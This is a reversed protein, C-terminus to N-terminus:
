RDESRDVLYQVLTRVGYGTGGRPVDGWAAGANYAPGAIDLHAFPIEGAFHSLFAAAFSPSGWRVWNHQLLDAMTTDTVSKAIHDPIPMPWVLEGAAQAAARVLAVQDESGFLGAVKHGLATICPGTLTSIEVIAEPEDESALALADALLLRGEADTNTIEVTTGNHTTLVDGPRMAAGSVMNEALPAWGIVEIPLKLSAAAHTAAIVAAAGAMDNKMAAMSSGSSITLGGSDYTVGKGVLAVRAVPAQPHYHLRALCPANASSLGVGLIGGCGLEALRAADYVETTVTSGKALAVAADALAAPTLLNPPQNVWGRAREALEEVIEARELAAAIDARRPTPTLISVHQPRDTDDAGSHFGEVVARVEDAERAPLAMAVSGSNGLHRAATGAARRIAVHDPEADPGLGVIVLTAARVTNDTRLRFVSGPDPTFAEAALLSGFRRGYAAAVAEGGPAVRQNSANGSVGIVVVDTNTRAPDGQRLTYTTV